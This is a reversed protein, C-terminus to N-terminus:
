VGPLQTLVSSGAMVWAGVIKGDAIRYVAFERTNGCESRYDAFPEAL